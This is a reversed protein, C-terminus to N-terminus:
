HSYLGGLKDPFENQDAKWFRCCAASLKQGRDAKRQKELSNGQGLLTTRDRIPAGMRVRCPFFRM